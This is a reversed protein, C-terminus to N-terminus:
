RKKSEVLDYLREYAAQGLAIQREAAQLLEPKCHEALNWATDIAKSLKPQLDADDLVIIQCAEGFQDTLSAFKDFYMESKAIGIAPIGQSLAFVAPHFAGTVVIRCAGVRKIVEGPPDFRWREFSVRNVGKLFQRLTQDDQEHISHSIPITQLRTNYKVAAQCLVSRLPEVQLKNVQTYHATRLSIGMRTGLKNTRGRYALEVADDGTFIVHSPDVGLSNLLPPASVQDRIFILDVLPLVASARERLERDEFPGLGQGVMATPIGRLHALEIRDLVHLADDRCADSMYQAGTAVFLDVDKLLEHAQCDRGQSSPEKAGLINPSSEHPHFRLLSKLNRGLTPYRHWLEERTELIVRLLPLPM